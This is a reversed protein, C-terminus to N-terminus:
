WFDGKRENANIQDEGERLNTLTGQCINISSLLGKNRKSRNVKVYNKNKKLKKKRKRMELKERLIMEVILERFTELATSRMIRNHTLSITSIISTLFLLLCKPSVTQRWPCKSNEHIIKTHFGREDQIAVSINVTIRIAKVSPPLKKSLM